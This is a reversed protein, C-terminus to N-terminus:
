NLQWKLLHVQMALSRQNTFQDNDFYIYTNPVSLSALNKNINLLSAGGGAASPRSAVYVIGGLFGFATGGVISWKLMDGKNEEVVLLSVLGILGGTLTGYFTAKAITVIPNAEGKRAEIVQAFLSSNTTMLIALLLMFLSLKKM